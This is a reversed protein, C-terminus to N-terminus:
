SRIRKFIGEDNARSGACMDAILLASKDGKSDRLSDDVWAVCLDLVLANALDM